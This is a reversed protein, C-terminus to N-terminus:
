GARRKFTRGWLGLTTAKGKADKTVKLPHPGDVYVTFEGAENKRIEMTSRNGTPWDVKARLSERVVEITLVGGGPEEYEGVLFAGDAVDGKSPFAMDSKEGFLMQEVAAAVIRPHSDDNIALVIVCANEAPMRKM